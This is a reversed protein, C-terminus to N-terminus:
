AYTVGIRMESSAEPHWVIKTAARKISNPDKFIMVTKTSINESLHEPQEGAFYEEFLDIENNQKISKEANTVLDRTAHAYSLLPDRM